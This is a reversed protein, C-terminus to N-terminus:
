PLIITPENRRKKVKRPQVKKFLVEKILSTGTQIEPIASTYKQNTPNRSRKIPKNPTKKTVVIPDKEKENGEKTVELEEAGNEKTGEQVDDDPDAGGSGGGDESVDNENKNANVINRWKTNIDNYIESGVM